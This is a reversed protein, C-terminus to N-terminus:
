QRGREQTLWYRREREALIVLLEEYTKGTILEVERACRPDIMLQYVRQRVEDFTYRFEGFNEFDPSVNNFVFMDDEHGEFRVSFSGGLGSDVNAHDGERLATVEDESLYRPVTPYNM